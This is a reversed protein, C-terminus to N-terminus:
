QDPPMDPNTRELMFLAAATVVPDDLTDDGGGAPMELYGQSAHEGLVAQWLTSRGAWDEPYGIRPAGNVGDNHCNSCVQNYADQGSVVASTDAAQECATLTFSFLFFLLLRSM